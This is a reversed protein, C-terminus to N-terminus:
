REPLRSCKLAELGIEALFPFGGGDVTLSGLREPAPIWAGPDTASVKWGHQTPLTPQGGPWPVARRAAKTAVPLLSMM